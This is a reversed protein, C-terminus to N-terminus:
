PGICDNSDDTFRLIFKQHNNSALEMFFQPSQAILLPEAVLPM